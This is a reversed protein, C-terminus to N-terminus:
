NGALSDFQAMEIALASSFAAIVEDIEGAYEKAIGSALLSSDVGVISIAISSAAREQYAEAWAIEQVQKMQLGVFLLSAVLVFRGVIQAWDNTKASDLISDGLLM